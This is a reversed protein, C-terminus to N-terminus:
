LVIGEHKLLQQKLDVGGAYGTLNGGSGIVRHCPILLLIPNHGVAGGVAQASAGIGQTRLVKALSGYTVTEGYPIDLLLKWVAQRFASGKPALPPLPPLKAKSFYADLWHNTECFVPHDRFEEATDDLTSAFYTQGAIWLGTLASDDAALTLIGVPSPRTMKYM